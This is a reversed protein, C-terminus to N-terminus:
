NTNRVGIVTVWFLSPNNNGFLAFTYKGAIFSLSPMVLVDTVFIGLRGDLRAVPGDGEHGLLVNHRLGSRRPEDLLVGGRDHDDPHVRCWGRASTSASRPRALGLSSALSYAPATSAVGIVINSLFTIANAKLQPEEVIGASHGVTASEM